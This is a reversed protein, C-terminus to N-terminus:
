SFSRRETYITREFSILICIEIFIFTITFKSSCRRTKSLSLDCFPLELYQNYIIISHYLIHHRVDHLHSKILQGKLIKLYDSSIISLFSNCNKFHVYSLNSNYECIKFHWSHTSRLHSFFNSIYFNLLIYFLLIFYYYYAESPVVRLFYLIFTKMLTHIQHYCFWWANNM